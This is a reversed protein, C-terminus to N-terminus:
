SANRKLTAKAVVGDDNDPMPTAVLCLNRTISANTALKQHRDECLDECLEECLKSINGFTIQLLLLVSNNVLPCGAM